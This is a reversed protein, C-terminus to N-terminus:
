NGLNTWDNNSIIFLILEIIKSIIKNKLDCYTFCEGLPDQFHFINKMMIFYNSVIIVM